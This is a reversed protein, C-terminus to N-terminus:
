FHYKNEFTETTMFRVNVIKKPKEQFIQDILWYWIAFFPALIYLFPKIIESFDADEKFIPKM